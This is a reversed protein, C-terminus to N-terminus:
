DTQFQYGIGAKTTLFGPNPDEQSSVDFNGSMCVFLVCMM